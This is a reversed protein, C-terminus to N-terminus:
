PGTKPLSVDIAILREGAPDLRFKVRLDTTFLLLERHIKPILVLLVREYPPLVKEYNCDGYDIRREERYHKVEETPTGLPLDRRM